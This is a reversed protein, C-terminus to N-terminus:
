RKQVPSEVLSEFMLPLRDAILLGERTPMARGKEVRLFGRDTLTELDREWGPIRRIHHLSVGDSTRFGLMLTELTLQAETLTESDGDPLRDGAALYRELDPDNWWRTKGDFSHAGPGLGLYPTHNWYKSNHRSRLEPARAFNSVEYQEYGAAQLTEATAVFLARSKEEDPLVFPLDKELTLQYCSLHAPEYEIGHRLNDLWDEVSQDPIGYMLDVSLNSFGARTADEIARRSQKETHRRGLLSLVRDDFSQIGLSLRNVGVSRIRDLWEPGVDDPNAEVTFEVEAAFSFVDRLGTTLREFSDLALLSPTGGGLYLTDFTEWGPARLRAEALVADVWRNQKGRDEVVSYFDCYVCKTRCFPVHLYLGPRPM